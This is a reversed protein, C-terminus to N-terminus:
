PIGEARQFNSKLCKQIRHVVVVVPQNAMMLKANQIKFDLLVNAEDNEVV